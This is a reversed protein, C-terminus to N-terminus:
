DKYKEGLKRLEELNERSFGYVITEKSRENKVEKVETKTETKAKEKEKAEEAVLAMVSGAFAAGIMSIFYAAIIAIVKIIKKNM